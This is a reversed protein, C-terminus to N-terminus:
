ILLFSHQLYLPSSTKSNEIDVAHRLQQVVVRDLCVLNEVITKRSLFLPDPNEKEETDELEEGETKEFLLNYSHNKSKTQHFHSSEKQAPHSLGFAPVLFQFSVLLLLIRFIGISLRLRNM